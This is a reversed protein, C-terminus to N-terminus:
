WQKDTLITLIFVTVCWVSAFTWLSQIEWLNHTHIYLTGAVQLPLKQNCGAWRSSSNGHNHAPAPFWVQTRQLFFLSKWQDMERRRSFKNTEHLYFVLKKLWATTITTAAREGKNGTSPSWVTMHPDVSSLRGGTNVSCLEEHDGFALLLLM